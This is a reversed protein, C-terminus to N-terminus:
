DLKVVQARVPWIGRETVRAGDFVVYSQRGYHPLPRMIAVLSAADKASVIALPANNKHSMTWVQASGKGYVVVPRAPLKHRALWKDVQEQLGIVLLPTAPIPDTMSIIKPFRHQLKVALAEAIGLIEINGPLLLTAATQDVMVQRLIPPTENPMLRRFLRLDADLIMEVPKNHLDFSFIQYERNLNFIRKELGGATHINIPVRLQYLSGTQKLTFTVRYGANLKRSRAETIRLNPAGTYTLWQKFFIQLDQGSEIEFAHRLDKWSAVRFLQQNWFLQLARNFSEQGLLDRLMLFTMAAKNYGVIQSAGHTRSIFTSLAEDQGPSLSSFDRLWGLRMEYAAESSEQEKYAYDSMFTTLGESWNGDPYYPYVGNGWWNHLVEHGLSTKRIFPLQLVDIGLYTFTPMGLGTPTPSSVVSFETFPYPGIWSEYLKIYDKVADIYVGSLEIIQSHFYTRLQILKGSLSLMEDTGIIYPGGILDIGEAPFPFEFHAHYGDSSESEEIMKGAVLGRQGVPFSLNVRYNALTDVIHPYWGSSAPLFTGFNSIVPRTNGFTAGHDPLGNPLSIEGYWHIEIHRLAGQSSPIKWSQIIDSNKESLVLPMGDFSAHTVEFHSALAVTLEHFSTTTIVTRGEIRHTTPDIKVAIDYEAINNDSNVVAIAFVNSPNFAIITVFIVYLARLTFRLFHSWETSVNM